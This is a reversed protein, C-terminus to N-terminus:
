RQQPQVSEYGCGGEGAAYHTTVFVVQPLVNLAANNFRGAVKVIRGLGHLLVLTPHHKIYQTKDRVNHMHWM